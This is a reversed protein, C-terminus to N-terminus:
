EDKRLFMVLEKRRKDQNEDRKPNWDYYMKTHPQFVPDELWKDVVSKDPIYSFHKKRNGPIHTIVYLLGRVKLIDWMSVLAVYADQTLGLVHRCLILDFHNKRWGNLDCVNGQVVWKRGISNAYSVQKRSVELGVQNKAFFGWEKILYENTWGEKCGADLVKWKPSMEVIESIHEVMNIVGPRSLVWEKAADTEIKSPGPVYEKWYDMDQFTMGRSVM